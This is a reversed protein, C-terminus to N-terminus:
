KVVISLLKDKVLVTRVLEKGEIHRLVDSNEKAAALIEDESAGLRAEMKARVKGNIQVVIEVKEVVLAEEDWSPWEQKFLSEDKGMMQWLEECIHPVFPGLLVTLTRLAHALIQQSVNGQQVLKEAKLYLLNTLEMASAIATNFHFDGEIDTTFKKITANTIRHVERAEDCLESIEPLPKGEFERISDMYRTIINWFRKIFRYAGEVGDDSWEADKEPPGIFLIYLRVIDTGFKKILGDPVVVNFKSKSMKVVANEIEDDRGTARIKAVEEESLYAGTKKMQHATRCIMGQTFLGAFPEDFSIHGADCLFKTFFRAYMLHLIAHEVGGIYQDVPFWTDVLKRDFPKEDDKPSLYRLFYWSSCVFTDM